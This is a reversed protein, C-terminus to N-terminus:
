ELIGSVNKVFSPSLVHCPGSFFGDTRHSTDLTNCHSMHLALIEGCFLVNNIFYKIKSQDAKVQVENNEFFIDATITFTLKIHKALSASIYLVINSLFNYFCVM